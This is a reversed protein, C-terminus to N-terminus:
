IEDDIAKDVDKIFKDESINLKVLINRCIKQYVENIDKPFRGAGSIYGVMAGYPELGNNLCDDCYGFSIAGMMSCRVTTKGIKGCVDCKEKM